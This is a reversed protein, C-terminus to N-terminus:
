GLVGDDRLWGPSPYRGRARSEGNVVERRGSCYTSM